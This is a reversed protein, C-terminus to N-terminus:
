REDEIVQIAVQRGSSLRGTILEEPYKPDSREDFLQSFYWRRLSLSGQLFEELQGLGCICISSRAFLSGFLPLSRRGERQRFGSLLLFLLFSLVAHENSPSGM